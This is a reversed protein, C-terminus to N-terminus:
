EESGADTNVQEMEAKIEALYKYYTTRHIGLLKILLENTMSGRGLCKASERIIAKVEISKQTTYKRDKPRGVKKGKKKAEKIGEKTRERLTMVESEAIQFALEIQKTALRKLYKNVGNLIDDVETDTLTIQNNSAQRYTDTNIHPEKLFVLNVGQKFLDFYTKIGDDANRSMRSVSDFVITDGAEVKGLLKQWEKRESTTGTFKEQYLRADPYARLINTIQRDIVQTKTSVRCYGYIKSTTM